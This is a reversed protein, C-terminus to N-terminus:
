PGRLKKPNRRPNTPSEQFRQCTWDLPSNIARFQPSKIPMNLWGFQKDVWNAACNRSSPTSETASVQHSQSLPWSQLTWHSRTARSSAQYSQFENFETQEVSYLEITDQQVPPSWWQLGDNSVMTPPLRQLGDNIIMAWHADNLPM